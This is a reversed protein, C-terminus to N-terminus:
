EIDGRLDTALIFSYLPNTLGHICSVSERNETLRKAYTQPRNLRHCTVLKKMADDLTKFDLTQKVECVAYVGDIPYHARRSQFTAGVKVKPFWLENFLIVDFDGATKGNRDNIVGASISY